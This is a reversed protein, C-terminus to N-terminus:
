QPKQSMRPMHKYLVRIPNQSSTPLYRPRFTHRAYKALCSTASSHHSTLALRTPWHSLAPSLPGNVDNTRSSIIAPQSTSIPVLGTKNRLMEVRLKASSVNWLRRLCGSNQCRVGSGLRPLVYMDLRRHAGQASAVWIHAELPSSSRWM